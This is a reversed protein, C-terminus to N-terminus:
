KKGSALKACTPVHGSPSPYRNISCTPYMDQEVIAWGDYAIEQLADRFAVFDVIGQAPECFIGM